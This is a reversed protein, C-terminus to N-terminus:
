FHVEYMGIARAHVKIGGVYKPQKRKFLKAGVQSDRQVRMMKFFHNLFWGPIIWTRGQVDAQMSSTVSKLGGSQLYTLLFIFVQM